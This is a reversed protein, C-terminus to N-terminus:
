KSVQFSKPSLLCANANDFCEMYLSIYRNTIGCVVFINESTYIELHVM